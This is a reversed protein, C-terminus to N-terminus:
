HGNLAGLVQVGLRVPEWFELGAFILDDAHSFASDSAQNSGSAPQETTTGVIMVAEETPDIILLYCSIHAPTSEHVMYRSLCRSIGHAHFTFSSTAIFEGPRQQFGTAEIDTLMRFAAEAASRDRFVRFDVQDDPHVGERVTARTAGIEGANETSVTTYSTIKASKDSFQSEDMSHNQLFSYIDAPKFIAPKGHPTPETDPSSPPPPLEPPTVAAPPAAPPTAPPTAGVVVRHWAGTGLKGTATLTDNHPELYTGTDAWALTTSELTYHGSRARFIGSHAPTNGPGEAHFAYTGNARIEWVWRAVGDANPVMVDWTGVLRPDVKSPACAALLATLALAYRM